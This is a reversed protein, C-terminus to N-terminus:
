GQYQSYQGSQLSATAAALQGLWAPDGIETIEGSSTTYVPDQLCKEYYQSHSHRFKIKRSNKEFSDTSM